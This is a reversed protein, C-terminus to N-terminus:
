PAAGGETPYPAPAPSTRASDLKERLEKMRAGWPAPGWDPQLAEHQRLLDLAAAPELKSMALATQYRAEYWEISRPDSGAGLTSWADRAETWQAAALATEGLGRLFARTNPQKRSLVRYLALALDRAAADSDAAGLFAAAEAAAAHLQISPGDRMRAEEPERKMIQKASDLAARAASVAPETQGAARLRRFERQLTSFLLREGVRALKEDERELRELLGSAAATQNRALAIQLRRLTLEPRFPADDVAGSAVLSTLVDLIREARDADPAWTSLLVDLMQRAHAAASAASVPDNPARRREDALLPEAISLYRSGAAERASGGTGSQRFLQYSMRAAQRLSSLQQPDSRPVALLRDVEERSPVTRAQALRLMLLTTREGEPVEKIYLETLEDRKAAATPPASASTSTLLDLCRIAMWLAEHRQKPDVLMSSAAEFWEAASALSEAGPRGKEGGAGFGCLGLLMRTGALASQFNTRDPADLALRFQAAAEKYLKIATPDRSPDKLSGQGSHADRARDYTQLARVQHGVFGTSAFRDVGFASALALVHGPENRALLDSVALDALARAAPSLAAADLALAAILRAEGAPLLAPGPTVGNELVVPTRRLDVIQKVGDWRGLRALVVARRSFVQNQVTIPANDLSEIRELWRVADDARGQLSFCLAMCVVSRAVHEYQVFEPRLQEPSTMARGAPEAGLPWSLHRMAEAPHADREEPELEAAYYLSWAALYHAMSRQRRVGSLAAAVLAEDARVSAEQRELTTIRSDAEAAIQQFQRALEDLRRAAGPIEEPGIEQLRRREALAELRSYGARALGLRLELSDAEPVSKLLDRARAELRSQEALDDTQSLLQAYTEALRDALDARKSATGTPAGSGTPLAALRRELHDALLAHLGLSALYQETQEDASDLPSRSPLSPPLSPATPAPAPPM